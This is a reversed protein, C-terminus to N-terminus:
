PEEEDVIGMRQRVKAAVDDDVLDAVRRGAVNRVRVMEAVTDRWPLEEANAREALDRMEDLADDLIERAETAEPGEPIALHAAYFMREYLGVRQHTQIRLQAKLDATPETPESGGVLRQVAAYPDETRGRGPAWAPDVGETTLDPSPPLMARTPAPPPDLPPLAESARRAPRVPVAPLDLDGVEPGTDVSPSLLWAAGAALLLGGVVAVAGRVQM